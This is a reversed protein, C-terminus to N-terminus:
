SVGALEPWSFLWKQKLSTSKWTIRNHWGFMALAALKKGNFAGPGNRMTLHLHPGTSGGRTGVTAIVQGQKIIDGKKVATNYVHGYELTFTVDEGANNKATHETVVVLGYGTSGVTKKIVPDVFKNDGSARSELVKGDFIAYLPAGTIQGIDVGSHDAQITGPKTPSPRAGMISTIRHPINVEIPLVSGPIQWPMTIENDQATPLIDSERVTPVGLVSPNGNAFGQAYSTVPTTNLSLKRYSQDFLIKGNPDQFVLTRFDSNTISGDEFYCNLVQGFKIAETNQYGYDARALFVTAHLSICDYIERQTKYDRPDPLMSGVKGLPRVILYFGNNQIDKFGDLPDTGTGTNNDSMFGSLCVCKFAGDTADVMLGSYHSDMVNSMTFDFM